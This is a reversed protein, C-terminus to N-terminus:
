CSSLCRHYSKDTEQKFGDWGSALIAVHEEKKGNLLSVLKSDWHDWPHLPHNCEYNYKLQHFQSERKKKKPSMPYFEDDLSKTNKDDKSLVKEVEENMITDRRGKSLNHRSCSEATGSM